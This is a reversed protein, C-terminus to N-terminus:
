IIRKLAKKLQFEWQRRHHMRLHDDFREFLERKFYKEDLPVEFKEGCVTCEGKRFPGARSKLIRLNAKPM